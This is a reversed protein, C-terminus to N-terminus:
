IQIGNIIAREVGPFSRCPPKFLNVIEHGGAGCICGGGFRRSFVGCAIRDMNEAHSEFCCDLARVRPGVEAFGQFFDTPQFLHSTDMEGAQLCRLLENRGGHLHHLYKDISFLMHVGISRSQNAARLGWPHYGLTRLFSTLGAPGEEDGPWNIMTQMAATINVTPQMRLENPVRTVLITGQNFRDEYLVSAGNQDFVAHTALQNRVVIEILDVGQATQSLGLLAQLSM